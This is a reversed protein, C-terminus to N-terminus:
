ASEKVTEEVTGNNKNNSEKNRAEEEQKLTERYGHILYEVESTERRLLELRSNLEDIRNQM